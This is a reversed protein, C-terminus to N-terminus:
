HRRQKLYLAGAALNLGDLDMLTNTNLNFNKGLRLAVREALVENAFSSGAIVVSKISINQDLHEIWNCIYDAFSDHMGFALKDINDAEALRFSIITGLTKCWNLSRFAEGRTLPFDIRPANAGKHCMARAVVFDCLATKTLLA